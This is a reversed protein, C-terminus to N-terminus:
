RYRGGEVRTAHNYAKTIERTVKRIDVDNSITNYMNLDGYTVSGGGGVGYIGSTPRMNMSYDINPLEAMVDAASSAVDGAYRDLGRSLGMDMMQGVRMMKKSPSAIEAEMKAARIANRVIDAATDAIRYFDSMMGDELGLVLEQGVYRFESYYKSTEQAAESVASLASQTVALSNDDIGDALLSMFDAGLTATEKLKETAAQRAEMISDTMMADALRELEPQKSMMGESFGLGMMEGIEMTERSPSAVAAAARAAGIANRVVEGMVEAISGRKSYIGNELGAALYQGVSEFEPYAASAGDAAGLLASLTSESLAGQQGTVGDIFANMYEEGPAMARFAEISAQQGERVSENFLHVANSIELDTGAALDAIVHGWEDFGGQMVAKRFLDADVGEPLRNFVNAVNRAWAQSEALNQKLNATWEELSTQSFSDMARFGDSVEATFSEFTKAFDGMTMDVSELDAAFEEASVGALSFASALGTDSALAEKVDLVTDKYNLLLERLQQTGTKTATLSNVWLERTSQEVMRQGDEYDTWAESMQKVDEATANSLGNLLSMAEESGEMVRNVFSETFVVGTKQSLRQLQKLKQEAQDDGVEIEYQLEFIGENEMLWLYDSTPLSDKFGKFSLYEDEIEQRKQMKQEFAKNESDIQELRRKEIDAMRDAGDEGAEAISEDADQQIELLREEHEKTEEEFQAQAEARRQLLDNEKDTFDKLSEYGAKRMAELSKYVSEHLGYVNEGEGRASTFKSVDMIDAFASQMYDRIKTSSEKIEDGRAKYADTLNKLWEQHLKDQEDIEEEIQEDAEEIAEPVYEALDEAASEVAEKAEASGLGEAYNTATHVGFVWEGPSLPGKAADTHGIYDYVIQAISEAAKGVDGKGSKLGNAFNQAAHTGFIVEGKSLPGKRPASHALYDAVIQAVGKSEREVYFSGQNIGRAFNQDLHRGFVEEGMRLPGKEPRSHGIYAKAAAALSSAASAVAGSQSRIGRAFNSGVHTGYSYATSAVSSLASTISSSYSRAASAVSGSQSKVGSAYRSGAEQGAAEFDSALARIQSLADQVLAVAPSMSSSAFGSAYANGAESGAASFEGQMGQVAALVSLVIAVAGSVDSSAFGSAYAAGGAAGAAQFEGEYGAILSVMSSVAASASSMDASAFGSALANGYALGQAMFEAEYGAIGAIFSQIAAQAGAMDASAFGTSLANGWSVGIANFEAERASINAIMADVAAVSSMMDATAFGSSLANGWSVGISYLEASRASISAIMMDISGSASMMDATSFGSSLSNGWSVGIAYLEMSRASISAIMASIAGQTSMMDATAFGTSLSNGWSVGIAMLEESRGSLGAILGNVATQTSMMDAQSFGTSLSNGLSLGISTFEAEHGQATDLLGQIVTEGGESAGQQAGENTKDGFEQGTETGAQGAAEPAGEFMQAVAEPVSVGSASLASVIAQPTTGFADAMSQVTQESVETIQGCKDALIAAAQEAGMGVSEAFKSFDAGEGLNSFSDVASQISDSWSQVSEPIEVGAEKFRDVMEPISVDAADALATFMEPAKSSVQDATVGFEDLASAMEDVGMGIKESLADIGGENGLNSLADSLGQLTDEAGTAMSRFADPVEVGARDCEAIFGELSTASGSLMQSMMEPTMNALDEVSVGLEHMRSIVQDISTGSDQVWQGLWDTNALAAQADDAMSQLESPVKIKLDNCLAVLDTASMQWNTVLGQLQNQDMSSLQEADFGFEALAKSVDGLSTGTKEAWDTFDFGGNESLADKVENAAETLADTHGSLASTAGDLASQTTESYQTAADGMADYADTSMGTLDAWWDTYGTWEQELPDKGFLPRLFNTLGNVASEIMDLFGYVLNDILTNLMSGIGEVVGPLNSIIATGIDKVLNEAAAIVYPIVENMGDVFGNFLEKAASEIQPGASRIAGVVGVLMGPVQDALQPVVQSAAELLGTFMQAGASAIVPAASTILSTVESLVTSLNQTMGSVLEPLVTTSESLMETMGDAVARVVDDFANAVTPVMDEILGCFAEIPGAGSELAETFGEIAERADDGIGDVFDSFRELAPEMAESFEDIAPIAAQFVGKLSGLMPTAVKEWFRSLAAQMNALAGQFTENAGYAAEGYAEHMAAAFTEFDVKGATVMERVAAQTTGMHKALADTVNLGAESFQMLEDGQIRGQAAVKAYILGINELSRGTLTTMGAVAKLSNTMAEGAKVGSSSLTTAVTAVEDLGFRTGRAAEQVSAMVNQVDMGLARLKYQAQEINLARDIGGKLGAGMAIGGIATAVGTVATTLKAAAGVAKSFASVTSSGVSQCKGKFRELVSASKSVGSNFNGGDFTAKASLTYDPM